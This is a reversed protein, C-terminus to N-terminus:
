SQRFCQAVEPLDIIIQVTVSTLQTHGRRMPDLGAM